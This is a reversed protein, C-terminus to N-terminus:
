FGMYMHNWMALMLDPNWEYVDGTDENFYYLGNNEDMRLVYGAYKLKLELEYIRRRRYNEVAKAVKKRIKDNCRYRIIGDTCLYIDVHELSIIDEYCLDGICRQPTAFAVLYKLDQKNLKRRGGGVHSTIELLAQRYDEWGRTDYGYWDGVCDRMGLSKAVTLMNKRDEEFPHNKCWEKVKNM